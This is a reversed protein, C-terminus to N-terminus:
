ATTSCTTRSKARSINQCGQAILKVIEQLAARVTVYIAEM